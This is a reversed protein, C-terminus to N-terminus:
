SLSGSPLFSQFFILTCCSGTFLILGLYAVFMGAKHRMPTASYSVVTWLIASLLLCLWGVLAALLFFGQGSFVPVSALSWFLWGSLLIGLWGGLTAWSACWQAAFTYYDRGFDDVNRRLVLWLLGLGGATAFELVHALALGLWFPDRWSPFMDRILVCFTMDPTLLKGQIWHWGAFLVVVAAAVLASGALFILLGHLIPLKRLPKWAQIVLTWLLLGLLFSGIVCLALLRLTPISAYDNFFGTSFAYGASGSFVFFFLWNLRNAFQGLQRSCREFLSKRGFYGRILGFFVVFPLMAATLYLLLPVALLVFQGWAGLLLSDLSTATKVLENFLVTMDM